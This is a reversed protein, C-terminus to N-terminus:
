LVGATKNKIARKIARAAEAPDAAGFVASGAVIVDCGAEAIARANDENAGGDIEIMYSSGHVERLRILEHVKGLVSPIFSQAAFGPDVSMVLVLGTEDLVPEIACVPTGPNISVGPTIGAARIAKLTRHIHTASEAHVTLVDAGADIFIDILRDVDRVMLHVDLHADPYRARLARVLAPGYTINPVYHGDMVDVHLWDAEGQLLDISRAMNLPDASLISPALLVDARRM